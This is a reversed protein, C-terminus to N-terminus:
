QLYQIFTHKKLMTVKMGYTLTHALKREAGRSGKAWGSASEVAIRVVIEFLVDALM